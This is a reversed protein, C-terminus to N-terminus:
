KARATARHRARMVMPPRKYVRGGMCVSGGSLPGASHLTCAAPAPGPAAACLLVGEARMRENM